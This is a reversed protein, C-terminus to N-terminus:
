LEIALVAELLKFNITLWGKNRRFVQRMMTVRGYNPPARASEYLWTTYATTQKLRQQKTATRSLKNAPVQWLIHAPASRTVRVELSVLTLPSTFRRELVRRPLVEGRAEVSLILRVVTRTITRPPLSAVLLMEVAGTSLGNLLESVM